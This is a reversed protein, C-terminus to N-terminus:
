RQILIKKVAKEGDKLELVLYYFGALLKDTTIDVIEPYNTFQQHKNFNGKNDYLTYSKLKARSDTIQVTIKDTAPNPYVLVFADPNAIQVLGDTLHCGPVICGNTDTKIIWADTFGTAHTTDKGDACIIFGDPIASLSFARNDKYWQGFKRKWKLNGLTDIKALLVYDKFTYGSDYSEVEVGTAYINANVVVPSYLGNIVPYFIYPSGARILENGWEANGNRDTKTIFSYATEGLNSKGGLWYYSGNIIVPLGGGYKVSDDFQHEWIFYGSTDMKAVWKYFTDFTGGDGRYGGGGILFNGDDDIAIGSAFNRRNPYTKYWLQRGTTDFSAVHFPAGLYNGMTGFSYIQGNHVIFKRLDILTDTKELLITYFTDLNNLNISAYFYNKNKRGMLNKGFFLSKSGKLEYAEWGSYYLYGNQYFYKSEILGGNLNIRFLTIANFIPSDIIKPDFRDTFDGSFVIDSDSVNVVTYAAEWGGFLNYMKSFAQQGRSSYVSVLLYVLLVAINKM